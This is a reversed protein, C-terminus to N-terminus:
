LHEETCMSEHKKLLKQRAVEMRRVDEKEAETLIRDTGNLKSSKSVTAYLSDSTYANEATNMGSAHNAPIQKHRANTSTQQSVQQRRITEAVFLSTKTAAVNGHEKEIHHNNVLQRERKLSISDGNQPLIGNEPRPKGVTSLM